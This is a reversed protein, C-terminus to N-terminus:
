FEEWDDDRIESPLAATKAPRSKVATAPERGSDGSAPGARLGSASAQRPSAKAAQQAGLRFRSVSLALNSAQEELSEAAATAQEVLAANQQVAYDMQGVAQNVQDIGASQEASAAAIESMIDTVRKVAAVIEDMTRGADAVLKAGGEVKEVSDGILTKIEKAAAASRQALNRVEGAVVAFGRGQEGARAAEVAANLALINTQFAIGDIVSIIDVVKRSSENIDRMTGVVQQVVAGGRVAVDSAAVAMQNAHKANDANQKVTSALQEMSASTQELSSAQADTRQSLDSNGVTIERAASTVSDTVEKITMVNQALNDVSLNVDNSLTAFAGRYNTAIKETLDGQALAALVRQVDAIPATIADLMKNINEALDRTFGSKGELAIRSSLEGNIAAEVLTNIGKEAALEATRDAWEVVAGLREGSESLVPNTTLAFSRGGIGIQARHTSTFTSLLHKQHQPNKHFEDISAGLLRAASFNPLAKRMDEEARSLMDVVSKNLYIIKRENDAIMVSTSVTDLAAKVRLNEDTMRKAESLDFGLKVRMSQAAELIKAIEDRRDIEIGVELDGQAMRAFYGYARDLPVVTRRFLYVLAMTVLALTLLAAGCSYLRKLTLRELRASLRDNLARAIAAYPKMVAAVAGSGADFVEIAAIEPKEAAFLKDNALGLFTGVSQGTERIVAELETRLAPTQAYVKSMGEQLDRMAKRVIGSAEALRWREAGTADGRLAMAQGTARIMGLRETLAPIHFVVANMLYYTEIEPDLSLNSSDAVQGEIAVLADVIATHAHLNEEPKLHVYSGSLAQWKTKLENWSRTVGLPEGLRRDVEDLGRIAEDVASRASELREKVAGNGGLWASSLGRHQALRVALDQVARVYEVGTMEKRTFDIDENIFNLSLLILASVIALMMGCVGHLLTKISLNKLMNLRTPLPTRPSKGANIRRYLTAARDIQERTPKSRVSMYGAVQGGEYLPTVNAMVWYHDGNKCRNKVLGAWPRGGKVTKWLDEFATQPMDPHRVINHSKGLLERESFGSIAVFEPNVYTIVGKLDTKSVIPHGERLEAERNTVPLNVKM